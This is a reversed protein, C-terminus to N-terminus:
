VVTWQDTGYFTSLTNITPGSYSIYLALNASPSGYGNVTSYSGNPTESSALSIGAAVYDAPPTAPVNSVTQIVNFSVYYSGGSSWSTTWSPDNFCTGNATQTRSASVSALSASDGRVVKFKGGYIPITTGGPKTYTGNPITFETGTVGGSPGQFLKSSYCTASSGTLTMTPFNSLTTNAASSDHGNAASNPSGSLYTPVNLTVSSPPTLPALPTFSYTGSYGFGIIQGSTFNSTFTLSVSTDPTWLTKLNSWQGESISPTQTAPYITQGYFPGPTASNVTATITIPSATTPQPVSVSLNSAGAGECGLSYTNGQYTYSYCFRIPSCTKSYSALYTAGCSDATSRFGQPGASLVISIQPTTRRRLFFIWEGSQPSRRAQYVYNDTTSLDSNNAEIATDTAANSGTRQVDQWAGTQTRKVEKWSYKIPSTGTKGTLKIWIVDPSTSGFVDPDDGGSSQLFTQGAAVRSRQGALRNLQAATLIDGAHFLGDGSQM